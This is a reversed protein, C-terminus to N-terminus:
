KKLEGFIEDISEGAPVASSKPKQNEIQVREPVAIPRLLLERSALAFAIGIVIVKQIAFLFYWVSQRLFEGNIGSEALEYTVYYWNVMLAPTAMWGSWGILNLHIILSGISLIAILLFGLFLSVTPGVGTSWRAKANNFCRMVLYIVALFWTVFLCCVFSHFVLKVSVTWQGRGRWRSRSNQQTIEDILLDSFQVMLLIVVACVWVNAVAFLFGRGAGPMFLSFASRSLFTRPLTRQVRRSVFVSEGIMLFGMILWYHAAFLLMVHVAMDEWLMEPILMVMFAFFLIQQVFMAIRIPTSRNDAPFSIQSAATVLLLVATSGFFAVFGYVIMGFEPDNFDSSSSYRTFREMLACWCFYLWGLLLVFLVSVGVGIARSRFVGALFLGLVTLCISGGVCISIGLVIQNLSIGRLMYTFCICPALVSLYILMQLIASGFKGIVIQHPKMTTISILNITGDEFERALSRYAGFPIILGLPFGLIVMFGFLLQPGARYQDYSTALGLVTWVGVCVLLALYTWIFQRSKLAQRTEKVLISSCWESVRDNLRGLATTKENAISLNSGGPGTESGLSSSQIASSVKSM